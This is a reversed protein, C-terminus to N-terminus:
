DVVRVSDVIAQTAELAQELQGARGTVFIEVVGGEVALLHFRSTFGPDSHFGDSGAGFLATQEESVSIDVTTGNLGAIAVPGVEDVDVDPNARLAELVIEVSAAPTEGGESGASSGPTAVTPFRAFAVAPFDGDLFLDFIEDHFHGVEWGPGPIEIQLHPEFGDFRYTGPAIPGDAVRAVGPTASPAVTTPAPSVASPSACGCVLV